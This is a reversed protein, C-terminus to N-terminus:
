GGDATRSSLVQRLARGQRVVARGCHSALARFLTRRYRLWLRGTKSHWAPALLETLAEESRAALASCVDGVDADTYSGTGLPAQGALVSQAGLLALLRRRDGARLWTARIGDLLQWQFGAQATDLWRRRAQVIKSARHVGFRYAQLPAPDPSHEAVPSPYGTIVAKRGPREPDPDVFLGEDGHRWRVRNSFAHLGTIPLDSMWDHVMFVAHDLDPAREFVAVIRALAATSNLVMDADLKIFMDYDHRNEMFWDYLVRHAEANGLGSFIRHEWNRYDQASLAAICSDREQEDVHLTGILIRPQQRM